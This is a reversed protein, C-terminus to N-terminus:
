KKADPHKRPDKTYVFDINSLNIITKAGYMKALRVSFDDSSRGPKWGGAGILVSKKMPLKKNPDDAIFNEATGKFM